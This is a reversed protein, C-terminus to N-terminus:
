LGVGARGAYLNFETLLQSIGLVLRSTTTYYLKQGFETIDVFQLFLHYFLAGVRKNSM